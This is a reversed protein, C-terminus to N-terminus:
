LLVFSYSFTISMIFASILLILIRQKRINLLLKFYCFFFIHIHQFRWVISQPFSFFDCFLQLSMLFHHLPDDLRVLFLFGFVLALSLALISVLWSAAPPAHLAPENMFFSPQYFSRVTKQRSPLQLNVSSIHQFMWSGSLFPVLASTGTKLFLALWWGRVSLLLLADLNWVVIFPAAVGFQGRIPLSSWVVGVNRSVPFGDCINAIWANSCCVLPFRSSPPPDPPSSSASLGGGRKWYLTHPQFVLFAVMVPIRSLSFGSTHTNWSVPKIFDLFIMCLFDHLSPPSNPGAPPMSFSSSLALYIKSFCDSSRSSAILLIFSFFYPHTMFTKLIAQITHPDLFCFSSAWAM